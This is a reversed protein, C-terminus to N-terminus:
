EIRSKGLLKDAKYIGFLVFVYSLVAGIIAYVPKADGYGDLTPFIALFIGIILLFSSRVINILITAISQTAYLQKLTLNPDTQKENVPPKFLEPKECYGGGCYFQRPTKPEFEENCVPCIKM